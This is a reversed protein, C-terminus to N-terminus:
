MAANQFATFQSSAALLYAEAFYGEEVHARKAGLGACLTPLFKQGFFPLYHSPSQELILHPIQSLM